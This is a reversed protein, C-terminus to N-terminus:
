FDYKDGSVFKQAKGIILHLYRINSYESRVDHKKGNNVYNTWPQRVPRYYYYYMMKLPITQLNRNLKFKEFIKPNQSNILLYERFSERIAGSDIDLFTLSLSQFYSCIISETSIQWLLNGDAPLYDTARMFASITTHHDRLQNECDIM